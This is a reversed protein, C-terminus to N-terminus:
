DESFVKKIRKRILVAIGFIMWYLVTLLALLVILNSSTFSAKFSFLVVTAALTIAYHGLYRVARSLSKCCLLEQALAMCVSFPIFLLASSNFGVGLTGNGDLLGLLLLAVSILTYYVCTNKLIKKIFDWIKM